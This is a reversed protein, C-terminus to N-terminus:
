VKLGNITPEKKSEKIPEEIGGKQPEPAQKHAQNYLLGQSPSKKPPFNPLSSSSLSPTMKPTIEPAAFPLTAQIFSQQMLAPQIITRDATQNKKNIPM